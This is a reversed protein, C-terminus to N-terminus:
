APAPEPLLRVGVEWGAALAALNRRQVQPSHFAAEIAAELAARPVLATRAALAGLAVV